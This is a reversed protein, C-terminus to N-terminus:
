DRGTWRDGAEEGETETKEQEFGAKKRTKRTNRPEFGPKGWGRWGVFGRYFDGVIQWKTCFFRGM